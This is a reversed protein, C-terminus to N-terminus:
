PRTQSDSQMAPLHEFLKLRKSEDFRVRLSHHKLRHGYHWEPRAQCITECRPNGLLTRVEEETMGLRLSKLKQEPVAPSHLCWRSFAMFAAYISLVIAFGVIWFEKSELNM